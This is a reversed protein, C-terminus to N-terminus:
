ENHEDYDRAGKRLYKIWIDSWVGVDHSAEDSSVCPRVYKRKLGTPRSPYPESLLIHDPYYCDTDPKDNSPDNMQVHHYLFEAAAASPFTEMYDFNSLSRLEFELGARGKLTAVREWANRTDQSPQSEGTSEYLATASDERASYLFHAALTTRLHFHPGPYSDGWLGLSELRPMREAAKAVLQLIEDPTEALPVRGWTLHRMKPWTLPESGEQGECLTRLPIEGWEWVAYDVHLEELRNSLVSWAPDDNWDRPPAVNRMILRTLGPPFPRVPLIRGFATMSQCAHRECGVSLEKMSSSMTRLILNLLDSDEYDGVNCDMSPGINSLRRLARVCEVPQLNERLWLDSGYEILHHGCDIVDNIELDFSAEHGWDRLVDMFGDIVDVLGTGLKRRQMQMDYISTFTVMDIAIILRLKKLFKLRPGSLITALKEPTHSGSLISANTVHFTVEEFIFPEMVVQWQRCTSGYPARNGKDHTLYGLIQLRLEDPLDDWVAM